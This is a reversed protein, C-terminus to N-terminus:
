KRIESWMREKERDMTEKSKYISPNDSGSTRILNQMYEYCFSKGKEWGVTYDPAIKAYNEDKTYVMSKDGARAQGSKCGDLYGDTFSTSYGRLLLSKRDALLSNECYGHIINSCNTLLVPCLLALLNLLRIAKITIKM